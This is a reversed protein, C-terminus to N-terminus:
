SYPGRFKTSNVFVFVFLIVQSVSKISIINIIAKSKLMTNCINAIMTNMISDFFVECLENSTFCNEMRGFYGISSHCYVIDGKNLPLRGLSKRLDEISYDILM